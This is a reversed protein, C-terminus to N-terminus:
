SHGVEQKGACILPTPICLEPMLILAELPARDSNCLSFCTMLQRGADAVKEEKKGQKTLEADAQFVAM